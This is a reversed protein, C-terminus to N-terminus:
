RTLMTASKRPSLCPHIALFGMRALQNVEDVIQAAKPNADLRCVPKGISFHNCVAEVHSDNGALRLLEFSSLVSLTLGFFSSLLHCARLVDGDDSVLIPEVELRKRLWIAAAFLELEMKDVKPNFATVCESITSRIVNIEELANSEGKELLMRHYNTTITWLKERWIADLPKGMTNLRPELRNAITDTTLIVALNNGVFEMIELGSDVNLAIDFLSKDALVVVNRM